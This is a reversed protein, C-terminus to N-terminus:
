KGAIEKEKQLQILMKDARASRARVDLDFDKLNQEWERNKKEQNAIVVEMQKIKAEQLIKSEALAQKESEIGRMLNQINVRGQEVEQLLLINENKVSSLRAQEPIIAEKEQELTERELKLTKERQLIDNERKSWEAQNQDLAKKMEYVQSQCLQRETALKSETQKNTVLLTNNQNILARLTADAKAVEAREKALLEIEKTNQKTFESRLRSLEAQAGAISGNIGDVLKKRQNYETDMEVMRKTLYKIHDELDRTKMLLVDKHQKESDHMDMIVKNQMAEAQLQAISKEEQVPAEVVEPKEVVEEERHKKPRAM